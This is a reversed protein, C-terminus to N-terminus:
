KPNAILLHSLGKALGITASSPEKVYGAPINIQNIILFRIKLSNLSM